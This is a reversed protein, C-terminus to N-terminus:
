LDIKEYLRATIARGILILILGIFACIVAALMYAVEMSQLLMQLGIAVILGAVFILLLDIIKNM